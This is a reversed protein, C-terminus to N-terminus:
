APEEEESPITTLGMLALAAMADDGVIAVIAEPDARAGDTSVSPGVLRVRAQARAAGAMNVQYPEMDWEPRELPSTAKQVFTGFVLTSACAYLNGDADQYAATTFTDADQPGYGLIMALHRADPIHAEPCALTIRM